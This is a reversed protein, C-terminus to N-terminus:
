PLLATTEEFGHMLNFNQVALGSAGKILNDIASTVVIFGASESVAIDCFNTRTVQKTSPPTDVLRVFPEDRYFESLCDLVAQRSSGPQPQCYITSLIGRDMPVLHPTFVVDTQTGSFRHLLQNIEPTHRHHGVGYARISENCQVFHFGPKPSRGGGSVGTKSDIILPSKAILDNKLLPGIPLLVSTPFCGPNAVLSAGRISERFLEPLGYPVSGVTAPDPHTVGYWSEFTDVDDLRYDASFDIVRIGQEAISQIVEASAAHPLCSFVTDIGSQLLQDLDFRSLELDLRGSLEPHSDAIKETSAQRSTACVIEAQPHGLLLLILERATYGTAGLIAVKPMTEEDVLSNSVPFPPDGM